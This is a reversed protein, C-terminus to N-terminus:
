GGARASGAAICVIAGRQGDGVVLGCLRRQGEVIDNLLVAAGNLHVSRRDGFAAFEGFLKRRVGGDLDVDLGAAGTGGRLDRHGINRQHGIHGGCHRELGGHAAAIGHVPLSNSLLIAAGM